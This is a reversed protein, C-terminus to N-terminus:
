RPDQVSSAAPASVAAATRTASAPSVVGATPAPRQGQQAALLLQALEGHGKQMAIDYASEGRSNRLGADAGHDLLLNALALNGTRAVLMLASSNNRSTLANVPAGRRLAEAALALQPERQPSSAPMHAIALDHLLTSGYDNRAAADAGRALLVQAADFRSMGAAMMLPTGGNYDRLTDAQAGHDLLLSVADVDGSSAALALVSGGGVCVNPNEGDELLQKLQEHRPRSLVLVLRPVSGISRAVSAPSAPDFAKPLPEEPCREVPPKDAGAAKATPAAQVSQLCLSIASACALAAMMLVWATPRLPKM